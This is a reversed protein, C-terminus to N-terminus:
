NNINEISESYKRRLKHLSILLEHCKLSFISLHFFFGVMNLITIIVYNFDPQRNCICKSTLTHRSVWLANHTSIKHSCKSLIVLWRGKNTVNYWSKKYKKFNWKRKLIILLYEIHSIVHEFRTFSTLMFEENLYKFM